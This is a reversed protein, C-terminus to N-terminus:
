RGCVVVVARQRSSKVESSSCANGLVYLAATSVRKPLLTARRVPCHLLRGSCVTQLTSFTGGTGLSRCRMCVALRRRFLLVALCCTVRPRASCTLAARVEVAPAFAGAIRTLLSCDQILHLQIAPPGQVATSCRLKVRLLATQANM